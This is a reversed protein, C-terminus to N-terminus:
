LQVGFRQRRRYHYQPQGADHGVAHGCRSLDKGIFPNVYESLRKGGRAQVSLAAMAAIALVGAQKLNMKIEMINQIINLYYLEAYLLVFLFGQRQGFNEDFVFM